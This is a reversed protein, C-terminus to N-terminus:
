DAPKQRLRDRLRREIESPDLEKSKLQEEARKRIEDLSRGPLDRITGRLGELLNSPLLGEGEKLAASGLTGLVVSLVEATSAGGEATGINELELTPLTVSRGGAALLDSRFRVTAETIRLKRILFKKGPSKGRDPARGQSLNDLLKSLNNSAGVFELTLEPKAITVESIPVVDRFLDRPKAVADIRDFSIASPEQFGAPNHAQFGALTAQGAWRISARDLRVPVKLAESAGREVRSRVIPDIFLTAIGFLILPIALVVATAILLKKKM